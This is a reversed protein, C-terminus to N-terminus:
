ATLANNSFLITRMQTVRVCFDHFFKMYALNQYRFYISIEYKVHQFYKTKKIQNLFESNLFNKYIQMRIRSM